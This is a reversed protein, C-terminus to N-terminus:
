GHSPLPCAPGSDPAAAVAAAVAAPPWQAAGEVGAGRFSSRHLAVRWGETPTVGEGSGQTTAAPSSCHSTGRAVVRNALDRRRVCSLGRLRLDYVVPPSVRARLAPRLTATLGRRFRRRDASAEVDEKSEMVVGTSQHKVAAPPAM